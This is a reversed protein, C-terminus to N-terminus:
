HHAAMYNMPQLKSKLELRTEDLYEELRYENYFNDANSEAQRVTKLASTYGQLMSSGRNQSLLSSVVDRDYDSANAGRHLTGSGHATGSVVHNM